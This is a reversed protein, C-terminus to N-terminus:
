SLQLLEILHQWPDRLPTLVWHISISYHLTSYIVVWSLHLSKNPENDDPFPTPTRSGWREKNPLYVRYLLVKWECCLKTQKNTEKQGESVPPFQVEMSEKPLQIQPNRALVGAGNGVRRSGLKSEQKAAATWWAWEQRSRILVRNRYWLCRSKEYNEHGTELTM